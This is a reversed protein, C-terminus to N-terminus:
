QQAPHRSGKVRFNLSVIQRRLRSNCSHGGAYPEGGLKPPYHVDACKLLM